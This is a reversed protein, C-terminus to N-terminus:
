KRWTEQTMLKQVYCIGIHWCVKRQTPWQKKRRGFCIGSLTCNDGCFRSPGKHDILDYKYLHTSIKKVILRKLLFTKMENLGTWKGEGHNPLPNHIVNPILDQMTIVKHDIIYQIKYKLNVCEERDLWIGCYLYACRQNTWFFRTTPNITKVEVLKILWTASLHKFLQTCIEELLTFVKPPKRVLNHLPLNKANPNNKWPNKYAQANPQLHPWTTQYALPQYTPIKPSNLQAYYIHIEVQSSQPYNNLTSFQNSNGISSYSGFYRQPRPRSRLSIGSVHEKKKGVFWTNIFPSANNNDQM